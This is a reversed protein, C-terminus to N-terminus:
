LEGVVYVVLKLTRTALSRFGPVDGSTVCKVVRLLRIPLCSDYFLQVHYRFLTLYMYAYVYYVPAYGQFAM